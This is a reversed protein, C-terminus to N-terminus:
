YNFKIKECEILKNVLDKNENCEYCIVPCSSCNLTNFIKHTRISGRGCQDPVRFINSCKGCYYQKPTQKIFSELKENCINCKRFQYDYKQSKNCQICKKENIREDYCEPCEVRQCQQWLFLKKCGYECSKLM